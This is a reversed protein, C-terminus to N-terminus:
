GSKLQKEYDALALVAASPGEDEQPEELEIRIRRRDAETVLLNALSQMIVQFRMASRGKGESKLYESLENVIIYAYAWDSQQYFKSQGSEELSYWLKLAISDWSGDPGPIRVPLMEGKKLSPRDARDADRERSLDTSRNPIPGPM